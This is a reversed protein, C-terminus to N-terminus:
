EGPVLRKLLVSVGYEYDMGPKNPLPAPSGDEEMPDCYVGVSDDGVGEARLADRVRITDDKDMEWGDAAVDVGKSDNSVDLEDSELEDSQRIVRRTEDAMASAFESYRDFMQDEDDAASSVYEGWTKDEPKKIM